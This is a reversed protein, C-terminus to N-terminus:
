GNVVDPGREGRHYGVVVAVHSAILTGTDLGYVAVDGPRPKYGSDVPHWTGHRIGWEYFSAASSNIDGNVFQYTVLAGSKLWVWAAFDACWEEDLNSNDCDATGADFYASYMNCYTNPPDTRYGLQSEATAVIRQGLSSHSSPPDDAAAAGASHPSSGSTLNVIVTVAAVLALVLGFIVVAHVGHPGPRKAPGSGAPGPQSTSRAQLKRRARDVSVPHRDDRNQVRETQEQHRRM